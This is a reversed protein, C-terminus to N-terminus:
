RFCGSFNDALWHFLKGRFSVPSGAVAGDRGWRDLYLAGVRAQDRGYFVIGWRVDPMEGVPQVVIVVTRDNISCVATFLVGCLLDTRDSSKEIDRVILRTGPAGLRWAM